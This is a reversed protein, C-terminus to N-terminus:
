NKLKDLVIIKDGLSEIKEKVHEICIEIWANTLESTPLDGNLKVKEDTLIWTGTVNKYDNSEIKFPDWRGNNRVLVVDGTSRLDLRKTTM